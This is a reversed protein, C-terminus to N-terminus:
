IFSFLGTENHLNSLLHSTAQVFKVKQKRVNEYMDKPLFSISQIELSRCRITSKEVLFNLLLWINGFVSCFIDIECFSHFIKAM